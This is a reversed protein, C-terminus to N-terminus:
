GDDRGYRRSNRRIYVDVAVFDGQNDDRDCVKCEGDDKLPRNCVECRDVYSM